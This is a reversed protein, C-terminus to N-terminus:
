PGTVRHSHGDERLAEIVFNQQQEVITLRREMATRYAADERRDAEMEQVVRDIRSVAAQGYIAVVGAWAGFAVILLKREWHRLAPEQEEGM